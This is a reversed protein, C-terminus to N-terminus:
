FRQRWVKSEEHLRHAIDPISAARNALFAAIIPDRHLGTAISIKHIAEQTARTLQAVDVEEVIHLVEQVPLKTLKAMSAFAEEISKVLNKIDEQEDAEEDAPSLHTQDHKYRM